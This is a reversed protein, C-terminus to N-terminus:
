LTEIYPNIFLNYNTGCFTKADFKTKFGDKVTKYGNSADVVAYLEIYTKGGHKEINVKRDAMDMLEGVTLEKRHKRGFLKM